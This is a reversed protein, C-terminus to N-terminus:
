IVMIRSLKFCVSLQCTSLQLEFHLIYDTLLFVIL